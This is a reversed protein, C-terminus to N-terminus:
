EHHKAYVVDNINAIFNEKGYKQSEDQAAKSLKLLLHQDKILKNTYDLLQDVNDWLYGSEGQSVIEKQGGLNIVVPVAGAAMAEVTTIGFHEMKAPDNEGFGMAHWYISAHGYLQKLDEFPMDPHFIVQVGKARLRLEDLYKDDGEVGGVLHLSWGKLDSEKVLKKFADIMVEHKKLKNFSIFRGVSLVIKEKKLPKFSLTDVPPYIVVSKKPYYKEVNKKTFKSNYIITDWSSLYIKNKHNKMEKSIIPTQIHLINKKATAFFISGDTLFFFLDYQKLFFIRKILNGGKGLPSLKFTTKSLDLNLRKSLGEKLNKNLKSLHADLLIDVQSKQSLAEAITLMYREGGGFSDLYPSYIAVRM